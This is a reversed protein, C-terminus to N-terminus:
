QRSPSAKRDRREAVQWASGRWAAHLAILAALGLYSLPHTLFRIAATQVGWPPGLTAVGLPIVVLVVWVAMEFRVAAHDHRRLSHVLAYVALIIALLNALVMMFYVM